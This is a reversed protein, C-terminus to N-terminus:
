PNEALNYTTTTTETTGNPAAVTLRNGVQDYTYSTTDGAGDAISAVDTDLGNGSTAYTTTSVVGDGDSTTVPRGWVDYVVSSVVNAVNGGGSGGSNATTSTPFVAPVTASPAYAYATVVNTTDTRTAPTGNANYTASAFTTFCDVDDFWATNNAPTLLGLHIIGTADGAPITFVGAVKVWSTSTSNITGLTYFAGDSKKQYIVSLTGTSGSAAQVEAQVQFTQGPLLQISQYYNTQTSANNLKISYLGGTQKTADLTATGSYTSWGVNAGSEMGPNVVFADDSVALPNGHADYTTHLDQDAFGYAAALHSTITAAPLAFAYVAVEDLSGSWYQPNGSAGSQGLYLNHGSDALLPTGATGLGGNGVLQGNVYATWGSTTVVVVVHYWNGALYPVAVEPNALWKTGDGIDIHLTTGYQLDLKFGYVSSPGRSGLFTTIGSTTAPKVWAEATFSGSVSLGSVSAYGTSGNLTVAKNSDNVLAGTASYTVGSSPM